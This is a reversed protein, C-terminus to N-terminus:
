EVAGIQSLWEHLPMTVYAGAVSFQRRKHVVAYCVDDPTLKRAAAFNVAELEAETTWGALDLQKCAKAEIVYPIGGVKLVIDGEDAAGSQRLREADLGLGRFFKVLTTEWATGVRRSKTSM